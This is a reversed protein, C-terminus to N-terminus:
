EAADLFGNIMSVPWNKVLTMHDAGPVIALNGKPLLRFMEVAHEPRIIDHDGVLVMSPAKISQLVSDPWDKFKVMREVCKDHFSQLKKPHPSTKLYAEKLEAPMHELKANKMGDWFGAIMGDRKTMASAIILKRALEPHRVAIQMAISGGNSYGFFDARTVKLFKMLAAADDASGEFSFMEKSDSTHGHGRQEYAIVTRNKALEPLAAGFSTEITSGGGHLLVLPVTTADLQGHVEYYMKVGNVPAYGTKVNAGPAAVAAAAWMLAATMASFTSLFKQKM